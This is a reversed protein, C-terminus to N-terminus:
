ATMDTRLVKHSQVLHNFNRGAQLMAMKRVGEGLLCVAVGLRTVAGGVPSLTLSPLASAWVLHEAWSVTMAVWYQM